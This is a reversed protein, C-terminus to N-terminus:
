GLTQNRDKSMKHSMVGTVFLTPMQLGYHLVNYQVRVIWGGVPRYTRGQMLQITNTVRDPM